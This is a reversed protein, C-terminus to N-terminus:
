ARGTDPAVLADTAVALWTPQISSVIRACTYADTLSLVTVARWGEDGHEIVVAHDAGLPLLLKTKRDQPDWVPAALRWDAKARRVAQAIQEAHREISPAVPVEADPTLRVDNLSELYAAPEPVLGAAALHAALETDGPTTFGALVWPTAGNNPSLCAYLPQYEETVLSTDWAAITGDASIALKNQSMVAAFTVCLYERLIGHPDEQTGWRERKARGALHECVDDWSSFSFTESLLRLPSERRYAPLGVASIRAWSGEIVVEAGEVDADLHSEGTTDGDVATLEWRKGSRVHSRRTLSITIPSGDERLYRLPFAVQSRTGEIAGTSCAVQWDEEIATHLDADIPLARSLAAVLEDPCRVELWFDRPLYDRRPTHPPEPAPEVEPRDPAAAAEAARRAEEAAVRAAEREARAAEQARSEALIEALTRAVTYDPEPEFDYDYEDAPEADAEPTTEAQVAPEPEPTPAAKTATPEQPSPEVGTEPADTEPEAEARSTGAEATPKAEAKKAAKAPRPQPKSPKLATKRRKWPKGGKKAPKPEDAEQLAALADDFDERRAVTAYVRGGKFTTLTVFDLTSLLGAADAFGLAASDIGDATLVEEVRPMFAQTGAGFEQTLLRYLYLQNNATLIPAM